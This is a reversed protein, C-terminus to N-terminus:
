LREKMKSEHFEEKLFTYDYTHNSQSIQIKIVLSNRPQTM